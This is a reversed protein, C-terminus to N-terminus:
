SPTESATQSLARHYLGQEHRAITLSGRVGEAALDVAPLATVRLRALQKPITWWPVGKMMRPPDCTILLLVLPVGAREAIEFAGRRFRRLGGVPSRTGEPFIVVPFGRALRQLAAEIVAEGGAPGDEVAEINAAHHHLGRFLLSRFMSSKVILCGSRVLSMVAPTDVLTPHNAIVVCPGAPLRVDCDRSVFELQRTWRMLAHFSDYGRAVVAHARRVRADPDSVGLSALPLLVLSLVLGGVGFYAFILASLAVNLTWRLAALLAM